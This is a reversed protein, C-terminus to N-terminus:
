HWDEAIVHWEDGDCVISIYDYQADLETNTAAGDIKEAANGDLTVVNTGSDIFKFTYWLGSSTAAAPLTCTFAGGNSNVLIIGGEAVTLTANDSKTTVTYSLATSTFQGIGNPSVDIDGDAGDTITIDGTTSNGTQLTLDQDGKSEVTGAASGTGCAVNGTGKPALELDINDDSGGAGVIPAVGADGSTVGVYNVPTADETFVLLEDGGADAIYGTTVIKPATLTKNTLVEAGTLSALTVTGTPFTLAWASGDAFAFTGNAQTTIGITHAGSQTWAGTTTFNGALTLNGSLSITRSGDNPQYTLTKNGTMNENVLLQLTQGEDNDNLFLHGYEYTNNATWTQALGLFALTDNTGALDPMCIDAASSSLGGFDLTYDYTGAECTVTNALDSATGISPIAWAPTTGGELFYNSSGPKALRIWNTGDFYLIDGAAESSITLDTVTTAGTNAMAVDGSVAVDTAVDAGSGVLIHADTLAAMKSWAVAASANVDANVIKGAGIATVGAASITIDGSMAKNRWDSTGNQYILLHADAASTITIDTCAAVTTVGTAFAAWSSGDYWKVTNTTADYVISGEYAAGSPLSATATEPLGLVLNSSFNHGFRLQRNGIFGGGFATSFSLLLALIMINKLYKNM